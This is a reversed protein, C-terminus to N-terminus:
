ATGAAVGGNNAAKEKEKDKDKDKDHRQTTSFIDIVVQQGPGLNAASSAASSSPLGPPVSETDECKGAGADADTPALCALSLHFPTM